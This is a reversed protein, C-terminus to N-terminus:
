NLGDGDFFQDIGTQILTSASRHAVRLGAKGLRSVLIPWHRAFSHADMTHLCAITERDHRGVVRAGGPARFLAKRVANVSPALVYFRRDPAAEAAHEPPTAEEHWARVKSDQSKM